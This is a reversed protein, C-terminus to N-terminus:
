GVHIKEEVQKNKRYYSAIFFIGALSALVAGSFMGFLAGIGIPALHANRYFIMLFVHVLSSCILGALIGWLVVKGLFYRDHDSYYVYKILRIAYFLGVILGFVAGLLGGLWDPNEVGNAFSLVENGEYLSQAGTGWFCGVGASVLSLVLIFIWHRKAIGM